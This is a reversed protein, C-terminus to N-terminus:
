MKIKRCNNYKSNSDLVDVCKKYMKLALPYNEKKFYKTGKEKYIKSHQIREEESFKWDELGKECDILKIIYEM